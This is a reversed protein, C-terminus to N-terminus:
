FIENNEIADQIRWELETILQKTCEMVVTGMPPDFILKVKLYAYTKLMEIADTNSFADTWKTEKDEISFGAHYAGMQCLINLVSNIHIILIQDFVTEEEQIGLLLKISNLISDM